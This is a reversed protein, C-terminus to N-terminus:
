LMPIKMFALNKKGVRFRAFQPRRDNIEAQRTGLRGNFLFQEPGPNWLIYKVPLSLLPINVSRHLRVNFGTAIIPVAKMRYRIQHHTETWGVRTASVM